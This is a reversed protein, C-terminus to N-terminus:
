FRYAAELMLISSEVSEDFQVDLDEFKDASRKHGGFMWAVDVALVTDIVLGAGLTFYSRDQDISLETYSIPRSAYGGRVRLPWSPVTVEVGVGYDLTGEYLSRRTAVREGSDEALRGYYDIESWDTYKLDAGVVVFDVPSYALGGRFSFPLTLEDSFYTTGADKLQGDAVLSSDRKGDFTLAVPTDLAVGMSLGDALYFLAGVTGRLGSVDASSRQEQTVHDYTGSVHYDDYLDWTFDQSYDGSLYSVTAGLSVNPSVDVAGALSWATIGGDAVYDEGNHWKRKTTDADGPETWTVPGDYYALRDDGFDYLREGSLAFVLSGRFTPFPYAFRLSTFDTGSYDTEYDSGFFGGEVRQGRHMLGGSVEVRQLRALAAPNSLVATADDAVAMSVGGMGAARAGTVLPATLPLEELPSAFGGDGSASVPLALALSAVAFVQLLSFRRHM